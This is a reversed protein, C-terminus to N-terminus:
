LMKEKTLYKGLKKRTRSLMSRVCGDSVEFADAIEDVPYAYYYRCVFMDREKKPLRDLFKEMVETFERSLIEDETTNVCGLCEELEDIAIDAEGGGRKAARNKRLKAASINRVIGSLYSGLDDPKQPPISNWAALLMDNVCEDADAGNGTIRLAVTRCYAGYKDDVEALADEDRRFFMEIIKQDTM